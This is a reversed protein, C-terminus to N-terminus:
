LVISPHILFWPFKWGAEEVDENEKIIDMGFCIELIARLWFMGTHMLKFMGTHM